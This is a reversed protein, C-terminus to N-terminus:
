SHNVDTKNDTLHLTLTFADKKGPYTTLFFKSRYNINYSAINNIIAVTLAVIDLQQAWKWRAGAILVSIGDLKKQTM